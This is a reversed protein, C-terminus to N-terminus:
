EYDVLAILRQMFDLEKSVELMQSTLDKILRKRARDTLCFFQVRDLRVVLASPCKATVFPILDNFLDFNHMSWYNNPHKFIENMFYDIEDLMIM